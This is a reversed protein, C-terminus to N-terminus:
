FDVSVLKSYLYLHFVSLNNVSTRSTKLLSKTQLHLHTNCKVLWHKFEFAIFHLYSDIVVVEIEEQCGISM